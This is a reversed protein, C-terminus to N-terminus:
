WSIGLAITEQHELTDALTEGAVSICSHRSLVDNLSCFQFLFLRDKVEEVQYTDCQTETATIKLFHELIEKNAKINLEKTNKIKQKVM